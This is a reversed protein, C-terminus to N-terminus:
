GRRDGRNMEEKFLGCDKKSRSVPLIMRFKHKPFKGKFIYGLELMEKKTRTRPGAKRAVMRGRGDVWVGEPETLGLYEWNAARYIAGTHGRWTDAYTVLCRFRGDATVLRVSRSLLFSAGNSPVEPLIVMRSLALVQQWDGDWSAEAASRTPPLWWCMGKCRLCDGVRFLGHMYTGTNSGGQSYHHEVTMGQGHGLPVPLVEWDGKRLREGM